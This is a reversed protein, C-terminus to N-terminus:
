PKTALAMRDKGGSDKLIRVDQFGNEKLLEGMRDGQNYGIELFIQGSRKLTRFAEPLFRTLIGLGDEGGDLALRPERKVEPSLGKMEESSVYPLNAAILDAEGGDWCGLLDSQFFRVRKALGTRQANARAVALAEPSVEFAAVNLAPREHALALAVAGSGTGVDFALGPAELPWNELIKEVLEETEPRPILVDPTVLLDLDMFAARGQLYALPEREKGRRAVLETFARSDAESCVDKRHLALDTRRRGATGALLLEAELKPDPVDAARLLVEARDLLEQIVEGM